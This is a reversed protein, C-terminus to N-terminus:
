KPVKPAIIQYRLSSSKTTKLFTLVKPNTKQPLMGAPRTPRKKFLLISVIKLEKSKTPKEKKIVAPIRKEVLITPLNVFDISLSDKASAKKIPRKWARAIRGPTEREPEVM